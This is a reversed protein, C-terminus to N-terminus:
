IDKEKEETLKDYLKITVIDGEHSLIEGNM